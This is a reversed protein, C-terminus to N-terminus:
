TLEVCEVRREPGKIGQYHLLWNCLKSACADWEKGGADTEIIRGHEERHPCTENTCRGAGNCILSV